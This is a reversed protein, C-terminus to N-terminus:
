VALEPDLLLVICLESVTLVHCMGLVLYGGPRLTVVVGELLRVPFVIILGMRMM